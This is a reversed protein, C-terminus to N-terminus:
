RGPQSYIVRDNRSVELRYGGVPLVTVAYTLDGAPNIYTTRQDSRSVEVPAAQLEVKDTGRNYVNMRLEGNEDYIRVAYKATQFTAVTASAPIPPSAPDIQPPTGAGGSVSDPVSSRDQPPVTTEAAASGPLQPVPAAPSPAEPAQPPSTSAPATAQQGQVQQNYTVRDGERIMLRYQSGDPTVQVSYLKARNGRNTFTIAADAINVQMPMERQEMTDGERNYLNMRLDGAQRFLRVAYRDTQFTLVTADIADPAPPNTPAEPTPAEPTPTEPSPSLQKVAAIAKTSFIVAAIPLLILSIGRYIYLRLPRSNFSNSLHRIQPHRSM